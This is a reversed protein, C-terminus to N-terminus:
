SFSLRDLLQSVMSECVQIIVDAWATIGCADCIADQAGKRMSLFEGADATHHHLREILEAKNVTLSLQNIVDAWPLERKRKRSTSSM